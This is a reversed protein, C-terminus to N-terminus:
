EEFIGDDNDYCAMIFGAGLQFVKIFIECESLMSLEDCCERYKEFIEKEAENLSDILAKENRTLLGLIKEFEKQRYFNRENPRVNGFWLEELMRM